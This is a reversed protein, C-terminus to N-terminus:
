KTRSDSQRSNSTVGEQRWHEGGNRSVNLFSSFSCRNQSKYGPRTKNIVTVRHPGELLM